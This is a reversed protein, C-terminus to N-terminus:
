AESINLIIKDKPSYVYVNAGDYKFVVSRGHGVELGDGLMTPEEDSEYIILPEISRAQLIYNVGDEWEFNPLTEKIASLLALYGKKTKRITLINM